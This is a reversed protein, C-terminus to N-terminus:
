LKRCYWCNVAFRYDRFEGSPCSVTRVEHLVWSPFVALSNQLPDLDVYDAGSGDATAPDAGFRYLRLQGGSFAKPESYFYLVASLVRDEGEAQGLPRRGPGIPLDVHAGYHAGDGHAALELELSRPEPGSTGTATMLEPLLELLREKLPEEIPGFDRLVAAIRVEPDLISKREDGVGRNIKAPRFRQENALVWDLLQKLLHGPLADSLQTYPPLPELM